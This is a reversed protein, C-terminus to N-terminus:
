YGTGYAMVDLLFPISKISMYAMVALVVPHYTKRQTMAMFAFFVLTAVNVRNGFLITLVGMPVMGVLYALRDRFVIVGAGALMLWQIAESLGGSTDSYVASKDVVSRGVAEYFFYLIVGVLVALSVSILLTRLPTRLFRPLNRAGWFGAASSFQVLAQTHFFISIASLVFRLKIGDVAASLILCIYAFKLREAPGLIVLLYYNSLLLSSFVIGCRYKYLCFCIAAVLIGNWFSLYLTRDVGFYAAPGIVWRYFPEASGLYINQLYAWYEISTDRLSDYFLTYLQADGLYYAHVYWLSFVFGGVFAAASLWFSSALGKREVFDPSRESRPM